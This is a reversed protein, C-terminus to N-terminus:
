NTTKRCINENMNITQGNTQKNLLCQSHSIEENVQSSMGNIRNLPQHIGYVYIIQDGVAPMIKGGFHTANKLLFGVFPIRNDGGTINFRGITFINRYAGVLRGTQSNDTTNWAGVYSGRKLTGKYYGALYGLKAFDDNIKVGWVGVYVGDPTWDTPQEGAYITGFAPVDTKLTELYNEEDYSYAAKVSVQQSQQITAIVGTSLLMIIVIFISAGLGLIKKM